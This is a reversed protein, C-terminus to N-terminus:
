YQFFVYGEIQVRLSSSLQLWEADNSCEMLSICLQHSYEHVQLDVEQVYFLRCKCQFWVIKFLNSSSSTCFFSSYLLVAVLTHLNQLNDRLHARENQILVCIKWKLHIKEKDDIKARYYKADFITSHSVCFFDGSSDNRRMGLIALFFYNENWNETVNM